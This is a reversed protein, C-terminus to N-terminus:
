ELPIEFFLLEKGTSAEEIGRIYVHAGPRHEIQFYVFGHANDGAPLMKANMAFGEIEPAALKSKKKRPPLPNPYRGPGLNPRKPGDLYMVDSAPTNVVERRSPTVYHIEMRDLRLAKGADNQFILLVPLLGFEDFDVKGFIPKTQSQTSYPVAAITLGNNTQKNPYTSAKEVKLGKDVAWGPISLLLLLCIGRTSM